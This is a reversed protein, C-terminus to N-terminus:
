RWPYTLRSHLSFPGFAGARWFMFLVYIQHHKTWIVCTVPICKSINILQPSLPCGKRTIIWQTVLMIHFIIFGQGFLAHPKPKITRFTSGSIQRSNLMSITPIKWNQSQGFYTVFGLGDPDESLTQTLENYTNSKQLSRFLNESFHAIKQPINNVWSLQVARILGWSKVKSLVSGQWGGLWLM